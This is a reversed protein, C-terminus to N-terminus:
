RMQCLLKPKESFNEQMCKCMLTHAQQICCLFSKGTHHRAWHYPGTPLCPWSLCLSQNQEGKVAARRLVNSTTAEHWSRKWLLCVRKHRAHWGRWTERQLRKKTESTLQEYRGAWSKTMALYLIIGCLRHFSFFVVESHMSMFIYKQLVEQSQWEVEWMKFSPRCKKEKKHKCCKKTKGKGKAIQLAAPLYSWQHRHGARHQSQRESIQMFLSRTGAHGRQQGPALANAYLATIPSGLTGEAVASRTPPRCCWLHSRFQFRVAARWKIHTFARLLASLSRLLSFIFLSSLYFFFFFPPYSFISAPKHCRACVVVLWVVPLIAAARTTQHQNSVGPHVLLNNMRMM